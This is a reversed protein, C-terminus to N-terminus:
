RRLRRAAPPLGLAVLALALSAPEPLDRVQQPPLGDMFVQFAGSPNAGNLNMTSLYAISM